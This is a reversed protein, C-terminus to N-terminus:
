SAKKFPVNFRSKVNRKRMRANQITIGWHKALAKSNGKFTAIDRAWQQHDKTPRGRKAVRERLRDIVYRLAAEDRLRLVLNEIVRDLEARRTKVQRQRQQRAHKELTVGHRVYARARAPAASRVSRGNTLVWGLRRAHQALTEMTPSQWAASAEELSRRKAPDDSMTAAALARGHDKWTFMESVDLYAIDSAILFYDFECKRWKDRGIGTTYSRWHNSQFADVVLKRLLSVKSLNRAELRFHWVWEGSADLGDQPFYATKM